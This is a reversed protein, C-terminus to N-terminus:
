NTETPLNVDGDIIPTDNQYSLIAINDKNLLLEEKYVGKMVYITDNAMTAKDIGRQITKVTTTINTGINNDNGILNSVYYTMAYANYNISLLVLIKVFQRKIKNM